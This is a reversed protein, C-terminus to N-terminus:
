QFHQELQKYQQWAWFQHILKQIVNDPVAPTTSIESILCEKSWSLNLEIECNILPVNLSRWFNILYKLPVIDTDLTDNDYPTRRIKAKYEFSKSKITKNKNIRYNNANENVDDDNIEDRYYNWLRGSTMSYNENYELLNYMPM